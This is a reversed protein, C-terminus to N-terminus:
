QGLENLQASRAIWAQLVPTSVGTTNLANLEDRTMTKIRDIVAQDEQSITPEINETPEADDLTSFEVDELGLTSRWTGEQQLRDKRNYYDQMTKDGGSLFRVLDQTVKLLNNKSKLRAEFWKKLYEPRMNTPAATSMAMSLEGASLAGFTVSGVVDLGLRNVVNDLEISSQRISPLLSVFFGSQAGQDIASIGEQYNTINAQLRPILKLGEGAQTKAIDFAGEKGKKMGAIEADVVGTDLSVRNAERNAKAILQEIQVPDTYVKNLFKVVMTGDRTLYQVLGNDWQALVKAVNGGPTGTTRSKAQAMLYEAPGQFGGAMSGLLTSGPKNAEEGMRAFYLYSLLAPDIKTPQATAMTAANLAGANTTPEPLAGTNTNTNTNTTNTTTNTTNPNPTPNNNAQDQKFLNYSGVLEDVVVGDIDVINGTFEPRNQQMWIAFANLESQSLQQNM